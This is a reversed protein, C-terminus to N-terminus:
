PALDQITVPDPRSEQNRCGSNVIRSVTSYHLGFYRGIESQSHAAGAWARRIAETMTSSTAAYHELTFRPRDPRPVEPSPHETIVALRAEFDADGVILRCPATGEPASVGLGAAVFEVYRMLGERKTPAFRKILQDIALNRMSSSGRIVDGYSSWRWQGASHCLGARVPNLVIYRCVENLYAEDDVILGLFRGQFLHGVRGYKRNFAQAYIGNVDRMGISLTPDATELLIHYHNGMLCYTWIRWGLRKSVAALNALFLLRDKDDAFIAQKANGRSIVHYFAGSFQIRIPRAM